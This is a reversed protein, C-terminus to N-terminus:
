IRFKTYLLILIPLNHIIKKLVKQLNILECADYIYWLSMYVPYIYVPYTRMKCWGRDVSSLSIVKISIVKIVIGMYSSDFTRLFSRDPDRKLPRPGLGLQCAGSGSRGGSERRRARSGAAAQASEETRAFCRGGSACSLLGARHIIRCKEGSCPHSGGRRGMRRSGSGGHHADKLVVETLAGRAISGRM